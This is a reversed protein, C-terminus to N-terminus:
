NIGTDAPKKLWILSEGGGSPEFQRGIDAKLRSLGDAYEHEDLLSFMSFNKEEVNRIFEENVSRPSTVPLFETCGHIFGKNKAERLISEIRPYRKIENSALSPFYSNYFRARIQDHSETVICLKGEFKLVRWLESFMLGPEPVHHIVDTMFAFDIIKDNFPINRHDGKRIDLLSNKKCALDRMGDSPEVGLCKSGFQKQITSLYNGTGCGFDLITMTGTVPVREILRTLLIESHSRTNDYTKSASDYNIM